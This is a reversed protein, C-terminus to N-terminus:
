KRLEPRECGGRRLCGGCGCDCGADNRRRLGRWLARAAFWVCAGVILGVLLQQTM